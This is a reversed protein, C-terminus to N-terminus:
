KEVEFTDRVAGSQDHMTITMEDGFIQVMLYGYGQYNRAIRIDPTVPRPSVNGGGNGLQVHLPGGSASPMNARLPWSRMYHHHHGTLVL